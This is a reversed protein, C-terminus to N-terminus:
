DDGDAAQEDDYEAKCHDCNCEEDSGNHLWTLEAVSVSPYGYVDMLIQVLYEGDCWTATVRHGRGPRSEDDWAVIWDRSALDAPITSTDVYRQAEAIAAPWAAAQRETFKPV